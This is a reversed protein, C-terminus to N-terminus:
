YLNRCYGDCSVCKRLGQLLPGASIVITFALSSLNTLRRINVPDFSADLARAQEGDSAIM